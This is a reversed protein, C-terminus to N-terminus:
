AFLSTVAVLVFVTTLAIGASRSEDIEEDIPEDVDIPEEDSEAFISKPITAHIGWNRVVFDHPFLVDVM